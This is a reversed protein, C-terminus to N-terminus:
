SKQVAINMVKFNKNNEALSVVSTKGLLLHGSTCCHCVGGCSCGGSVCCNDDM